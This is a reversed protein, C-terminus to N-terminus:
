ASAFIDQMGLKCLVSHLVSSSVGNTLIDALHENTKMYPTCIICAQLKEKIFHRDIQPEIYSKKQRKPKEPTRRRKKKKKRKNQHGKQISRTHKPDGKRKKLANQKGIL